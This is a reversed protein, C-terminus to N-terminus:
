KGRLLKLKLQKNKKIKLKKLLKVFPKYLTFISFVCFYTLLFGADFIYLPKVILILIASFSMANVKDYKEGMVGSFLFMLSMLSARVVSPSFNCVYCYLLLLVFMVVLKVVRKAKLKDLILSLIAVIISIHLGSIALLHAIGVNSFTNKIEEDLMSKDGVFITKVLGATEKSFNYNEYYM